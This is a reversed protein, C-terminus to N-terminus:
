SCPYEKIMGVMLALSLTALPDDKTTDLTDFYNKKRKYEKLAIRQYDKLGLGLEEPQCYIQRQDKNRLFGNAVSLTIGAAYLYNSTLMDSSKGNTENELDIFVQRMDFAETSFAKFGFLSLFVFFILYSLKRYVM